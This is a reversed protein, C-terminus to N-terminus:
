AFVCSRVTETRALQARAEGTKAREGQTEGKRLGGVTSTTCVRGSMWGAQERLWPQWKFNLQWM